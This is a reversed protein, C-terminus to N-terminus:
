SEEFLLDKDKPSVILHVFEQQTRQMENTLRKLELADEKTKLVIKFRPADETEPTALQSTFMPQEDQLEEIEEPSMEVKHADMFDQLDKRGKLMAVRLEEVKKTTM